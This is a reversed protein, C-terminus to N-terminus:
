PDLDKDIKEIWAVAVAAVQILEKRLDGISTRPNGVTVELAAKTVEGAEEGLIMSWIPHPHHTQDGWKLDQAHRERLIDFIIERSDKSIRFWDNM